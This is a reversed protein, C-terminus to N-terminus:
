LGKWLAEGLKGGVYLWCSEPIDINDDGFKMYEGVFEVSFSIVQELVQLAGPMCVSFANFPCVWVGSLNRHAGFLHTWSVVMITQVPVPGVPVPPLKNPQTM